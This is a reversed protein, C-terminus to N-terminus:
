CGVSPRFVSETLYHDQLGERLRGYSVSVSGAEKELSLVSAFPKVHFITAFYASLYKIYRVKIKV